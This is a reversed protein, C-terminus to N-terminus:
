QIGIHTRNQIITRAPLLVLVYCSILIQQTFFYIFNYNKSELFTCYWLVYQIHVFIVTIHVRVFVLHFFFTWLLFMSWSFHIIINGQSRGNFIECPFYHKLVNKHLVLTVSPGWIHSHVWIAIYLIEKFKVLCSSNKFIGSLENSSLTFIDFMM